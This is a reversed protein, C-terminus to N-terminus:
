ANDSTICNVIENIKMSKEEKKRANEKISEHNSIYSIINKYKISENEDLLIMLASKGYTESFSKLLCKDVVNDMFIKKKISNINEENKLWNRNLIKKVPKLMPLCHFGIASGSLLIFLIFSFINIPVKAIFLMTITMLFVNGLLFYPVYKNENFINFSYEEVFKSSYNKDFNKLFNYEQKELKKKYDESSCLAEDEFAMNKQATMNM